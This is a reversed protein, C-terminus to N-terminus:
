LVENRVVAVNNGSTDGVSFSFGEIGDLALALDEGDEGWARTHEIAFKFTYVSVTAGTGAAPLDAIPGTESTVTVDSLIVPQARLNITEVLKDLSHQSANAPNGTVRIDVLTRVTFFDMNGTLKEGAFVHGHVKEVM